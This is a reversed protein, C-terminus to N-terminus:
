EMDAIDRKTVANGNGGHALVGAFVAEGVVPMEDVEASAGNPACAGDEGFSGGDDGPAADTGGIEADPLVRMDLVQRTYNAEKAVVTGYGSGLKGVSAEFGRGGNRPAILTSGDDGDGIAAPTGDIGGRRLAEGGFGNLGFRQRRLADRADGASEAFSSAAAEFSAEFEDFDVSGVAVENVLEERGQDVGAGVLVTAAKLVAGADQALDDFGDTFDPGFTEGQPKADRGRVPDLAAPSDLIGDGESPLGLRQADIEDVRGRSADNGFCRNREAGAILSGKGLADAALRSDECSGNAHDGRGLLGLVDDRGSLGVNNQQSAFEEAIGIPRQTGGIDEFLLDCPRSLVFTGAELLAAPSM